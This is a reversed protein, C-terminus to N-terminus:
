YNNRSKEITDDSGRFDTYNDKRLSCMCPNCHDRLATLFMVFQIYKSTSDASDAFSSRAGSFHLLNIWVASTLM